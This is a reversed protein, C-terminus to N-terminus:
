WSTMGHRLMDLALLITATITLLMGWFRLRFGERIKLFHVGHMLRGVAFVMAVPLLFAAPSGSAEAVGLLILFMPITEVANGHGRILREGLEDGGSGLSVRKDRRFGVVAFTLFVLWLALLGAFLATIPLAM